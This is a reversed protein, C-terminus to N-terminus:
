NDKVEIGINNLDKIISTRKDEENKINFEKYTNLEGKIPTKLMRVKDEETDYELEMSFQRKFILEHIYDIIIGIRTVRISYGDERLRKVIYNLANKNSEQSVEDKLLLAQRIIKEKGVLVEGYDLIGDTLKLELHNFDTFAYNPRARLVNILKSVREKNDNIYDEIKTEKQHCVRYEPNLKLISTKSSIKDFLRASYKFAKKSVISLHQDDIRLINVGTVKNTTTDLVIKTELGLSNFFETYVLEAGRLQRVM